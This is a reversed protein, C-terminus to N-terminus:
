LDFTFSSFHRFPVSFYIEDTLTLEGSDELSLICLVLVLHYSHLLDLYALLAVRPIPYVPCSQPLDLEKLFQLVGVDYPKQIDKTVLGVDAEYKVVHISIKLHNNSVGGNEKGRAVDLGVDQHRMPQM